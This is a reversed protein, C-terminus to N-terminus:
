FISGRKIYAIPHQQANINIIKSYDRIANGLLGLEHYASSRSLYVSVLMQAVVTNSTLKFLKRLFRVAISYDAIAQRFDELKHYAEARFWYASIADPKVEIAKTFDSIAGAYVGQDYKELGLSVFNM